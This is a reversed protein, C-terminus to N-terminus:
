EDQEEKCEDCWEPEVPEGTVACYYTPDDFAGSQRAGSCYGSGALPRPPTQTLAIM